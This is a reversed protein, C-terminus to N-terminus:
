AANREVEEFQDPLNGRRWMQPDTMEVARLIGGGIALYKSNFAAARRDADLWLEERQRDDPVLKAAQFGEWAESRGSKIMRKLVWMAGARAAPHGVVLEPSLEDITVDIQNGVTSVFDPYYASPANTAWLSGRLDRSRIHTNIGLGSQLGKPAALLTPELLTQSWPQTLEKLAKYDGQLYRVMAGAPRRYYDLFSVAAGGLATPCKYTDFTNAIDLSLRTYVINFGDPLGAQELGEGMEGLTDAVWDMQDRPQASRPPSRHIAQELISFDPKPGLQTRFAEAVEINM